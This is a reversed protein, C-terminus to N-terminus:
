KGSHSFVESSLWAQLARWPLAPWVTLTAPHLWRSSMPGQSGNEHRGAKPGSVSSDRGRGRGEERGDESGKLGCGTIVGLLGPAAVDVLEHAVGVAGARHVREM